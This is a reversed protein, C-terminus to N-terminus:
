KCTDVLNEFLALVTMPGVGGPVPTIAAVIEKVAEILNEHETGVGVVYEGESKTVGALAALQDETFTKGFHSLLIKLAAPGCLGTTQRFKEVLINQNDTNIKEDSSM